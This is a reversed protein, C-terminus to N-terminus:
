TTKSDELLTEMAFDSYASFCGLAQPDEFSGCFSNKSIFATEGMVTVAQKKLLTYKYLFNALNTPIFNRVVVYKDQKFTDQHNTFQMGDM